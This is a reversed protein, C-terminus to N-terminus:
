GSMKGETCNGQVAAAEQWSQETGNTVAAAEPNGQMSEQWVKANPNLSAGKSTVQQSFLLYANSFLLFKLFYSQITKIARQQEIM